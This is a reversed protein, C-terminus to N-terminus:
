TEGTVATAAAPGDDIADPCAQRVAARLSRSGRPMRRLTQLLHDREAPELYDYLDDRDAYDQIDVVANLKEDWDAVARQKLKRTRTMRWYEFAVYALLGLPLIMRLQYVHVRVPDDPHNGQFLTRWPHPSQYLHLGLMVVAIAICGGQIIRQVPRPLRNFLKKKDSAERAERRVRAAVVHSRINMVKQEIEARSKQDKSM